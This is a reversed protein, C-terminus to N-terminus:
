RKRILTGFEAKGTAISAFATSDGADVIAITGVGSELLSLAEEVKPIMGGVIVGKNIQEKAEAVDLDAFRSAPNKIDEFIGGIGTVFILLEASMERAIQVVTTDANINFVAGSPDMGLSAIIPVLDTSLLSVLVDTNIGTVDGVEGFDIPDPGGGSVNIPPRRKAQILKGSAGHCGFANVGQAQMVSVLDVNVQGCLVQKVLVLDEKSTIRRGAVKRPEIGCRSQMASLQPGGGHLVVVHWNDAILGLINQALGSRQIEDLLIDGGVKIVALPKRETTTSAQQNMAQHKM